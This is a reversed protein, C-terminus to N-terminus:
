LKRRGYKKGLLLLMENNQINKMKFIYERLLISKDMGKQKRIAIDGAIGATVAANYLSEM